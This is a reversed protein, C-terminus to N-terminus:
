NLETCRRYYVVIVMHYLMMRALTYYRQEPRYQARQAINRGLRRLLSWRVSLYSRRWPVAGGRSSGVVADPLHEEYADKAADVSGQWDDRSLRPEIVEHGAAALAKPKSGGPKSELGHLFLIKM